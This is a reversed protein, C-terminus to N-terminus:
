QRFAPMARTRDFGSTKRAATPVFGCRRTSSVGDPSRAYTGDSRLWLFRDATLVALLDSCTAADLGWLRRAQAVTLCLGPMELFETRVRHMLTEPLGAAVSNDAM